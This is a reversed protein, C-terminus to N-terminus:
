IPICVCVFAGSRLQIFRACTVGGPKKKNKKRESIIERNSYKEMYYRPLVNAESLQRSPIKEFHQHTKTDLPM